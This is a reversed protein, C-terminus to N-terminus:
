EPRKGGAIGSDRHSVEVTDNQAISVTCPTKGTFTVELHKKMSDREQVAGSTSKLDRILAGKFFVPSELKCSLFIKM